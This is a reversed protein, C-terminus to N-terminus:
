HTDEKLKWIEKEIQELLEDDDPENGKEDVVELLEIKAPAFQDNSREEEIYSYNVHYTVDDIEIREYMM